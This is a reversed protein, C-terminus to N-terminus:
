RAAGRFLPTPRWTLVPDIISAMYSWLACADAENDDEVPWGLDRCQKITMAKAIARKPNSGIFHHRVDSAKAKRVDYLGLLHAVAGFVAPLGYLVTTTNVNTKSKGFSTPQPAEWVVVGPRNARFGDTAWTVAAAFIAEHSAGESGFRISGSTPREAGLAGFAFGTRTALDLAFITVPASV